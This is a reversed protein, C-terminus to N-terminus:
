GAREAVPNDKAGFPLRTEGGREGLYREWVRRSANDVLYISYYNQMFRTAQALNEIALLLIMGLVSGNGLAYSNSM